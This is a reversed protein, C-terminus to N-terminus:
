VRREERNGLAPASSTSKSDSKSESQKPPPTEKKPESKKEQPPPPPPSTEEKYKSEEKKSSEPDSSTSQDKPAPEKPEADGKEKEGGSPAGGLELRVLDQGVTVTDEENALFEKITGAEPANVAVDIQFLHPNAEFESVNALSPVKDTEITAIEEDQEVFDGIQKSWQKLTGESISEAM